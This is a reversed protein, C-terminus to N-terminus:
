EKFPKFNPSKFDFCQQHILESVEKAAAAQCQRNIATTDMIITDLWNKPIELGFKFSMKSKNGPAKKSTLEPPIGQAYRRSRRNKASVPTFITSKLSEFNTRHLRHLTSRLSRLFM